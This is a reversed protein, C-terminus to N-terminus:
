WGAWPPPIACLASFSSGRLASVMPRWRAATPGCPTWTVWGRWFTPLTAWPTKQGGPHRLLLVPYLGWLLGCVCLVPRQATGRGAPVACRLRRRPRGRGHRHPLHLSAAFDNTSGCPLYGLLPRQELQMLGSLTENLTGDGGACVVILDYDGGCRAAM